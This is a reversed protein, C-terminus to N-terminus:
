DARRRRYLASLTTVSALSLLGLSPEPVLNVLFSGENDTYFGPQSGFGEADMTGLLVRTTGEPAVFLQRTGSGTGTLGDGVFFVQGLEPALQVFDTGLGADELFPSPTFDLAEPPDALPIEDDLFVGVLSGGPGTYGSIGGVPGVDKAEDGDPGTEVGVPSFLALGYAYFRLQEGPSAPLELPFTELVQGAGPETRVLPFGDLDGGIPPIVVDTRGALGIADTALVELDDPVLRVTYAGTNDTYFGQPGGLGFSDMTGLALRTAGEPVTFRQRAGNGTGTLGDGIYFVQGLEPALMAFDTGLGADTFDLAGPPIAIPVEDDLFVGVLSGGLGAYGSIGDAPLVDKPADGDPGAGAGGPGFVCRGVADFGLQEGPTVAIEQPFTEVSQMPGPETRSIPLGSSDDGIPPIVLDTRGALGIADTALVQVAELARADIALSVTSCPALLLLLMGTTKKM